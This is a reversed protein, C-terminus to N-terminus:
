VIVNLLTVGPPVHLLLLVETAVISTVVPTSVPVWVPMEGAVAVIEYEGPAPQPMVAMIVTLGNGSAIPPAPVIHTPADIVSLEGVDPPVHLLPFVDMAVTM